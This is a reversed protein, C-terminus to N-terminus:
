TKLAHTLAETVTKVSIVEAGGSISRAGAGASGHPIIFRRFGLRVGENIRADVRGVQRVEGGLGVEGFVALDPYVPLDRFSSALAVAVGLDAAPEGVSMGGAVKVYADYTSLHLGARKELVAMILCVRNYDLGSATRRPNGFSTPSVLAQVEVLVPRSGEVCPVVASGSVGSLRECLLVGSPNDVERLGSETMEFVGIENTSGFRNKVARLVRFAQYREGEFYLVTDVMHELLRPGAIDGSKTVHGVLFISTGSSKALRLLRGTSERVQSVTGPASGIEPDYATQISDLIAVAPRLRDIYGEIARVDTEPLLMLGNAVANLREARLKTQGASEEGSIYLVKRSAALRDAVQLLLTSKGVGPDGAVLVLTGPVVGGGIVRDFEAIGTVMRDDFIPRVESIPVPPQGGRHNPDGGRGPEYEVEETMSNWVGCEPCRGLWKLSEYGCEGCVFKRRTRGM